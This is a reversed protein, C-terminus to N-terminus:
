DGKIFTAMLNFGLRDLNSQRPKVVERIHNLMSYCNSRVVEFDCMEIVEDPYLSNGMGDESLKRRTLYMAADVKEDDNVFDSLLHNPRVRIAGCNEILILHAIAYDRAYRTIAPMKGTGALREKTIADEGYDCGGYLSDSETDYMSVADMDM